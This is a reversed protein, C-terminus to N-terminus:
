VSDCSGKKDLIGRSGLGSDPSVRCERMNEIHGSSTLAGDETGAQWCGAQIVKVM